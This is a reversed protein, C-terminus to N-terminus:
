APESSLEPLEPPSLSPLCRDSPLEWSFSTGEPLLSLSAECPSVLDTDSFLLVAFPLTLIVWYSQNNEENAQIPDDNKGVRSVCHTITRYCSAPPYAYHVFCRMMKIHGNLNYIIMGKVDARRVVVVMMMVVVVVIVTTMMSQLSPPAVRFDIAVARGRDGGCVVLAFYTGAGRVMVVVVVMPVLVYDDRTIIVVDM